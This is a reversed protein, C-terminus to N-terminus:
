APPVRLVALPGAPGDEGPFGDTAGAGVLSHVARFDDRVAEVERPEVRLGSNPLGIVRRQDHVVAGETSLGTFTGGDVNLNGKFETVDM